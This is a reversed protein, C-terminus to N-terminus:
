FRIIQLGGRGLPALYGRHPAKQHLYCWLEVGANGSAARERTLRKPALVLTILWLLLYFQVLIFHLCM